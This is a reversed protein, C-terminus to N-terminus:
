QKELKKRGEELEVFVRNEKILKSSDFFCYTFGREEDSERFRYGDIKEGFMSPWTKILEHFKFGNDLDTLKQGFIGTNGYMHNIRNLSDQNYESVVLDYDRKYDAFTSVFNRDAEEYTKFNENLVDFGTITLVHLMDMITHCRSFDLIHIGDAYCTTLYYGKTKDLWWLDEALNISDTFFYFGAINKCGVGPYIYSSNKFSTSWEEPTETGDNRYLTLKGDIFKIFRMKILELEEETM